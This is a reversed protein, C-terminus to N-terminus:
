IPKNYITLVPCYITDYSTNENSPDADKNCIHVRDGTKIEELIDSDFGVRYKSWISQQLPTDCGVILGDGANVEWFSFDQGRDEFKIIVTRM